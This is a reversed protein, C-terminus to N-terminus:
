ASWTPRWRSTTQLGLARGAGAARWRGARPSVALTVPGEPRAPRAGCRQTTSSTTRVSTTRQGPISAHPGAPPSYAMTARVVAENEAALDTLPLRNDVLAAPDLVVGNLSVDHLEAPKLELFTQGGPLRCSFSITTSSGFGEGPQTLDLVVRYEHVRLLDAREVAEDRTLSPM